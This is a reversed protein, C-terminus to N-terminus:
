GCDVRGERATCRYDTDRGSTVITATHVHESALSVTCAGAFARFRAVTGGDLARWEPGSGCDLGVADVQADSDVVIKAEAARPPDGPCLKTVLSGVFRVESDQGVAESREVWSAYPAGCRASPSVMMDTWAMLARAKQVDHPDEALVDAVTSAFRATAPEDTAADRYHITLVIPDTPALKGHVALDQLFLQHNGAFFDIAQVDAKVTSSEEGYFRKMALSDPLTLEFQVDHAITSVLGDLGDGFLRDVVRDSGLFVYAGHGRESLKDLNADNIDTGVGVATLRVGHERYGRAIEALAGSDTQGVNANADTFLVVRTERSVGRVHSEALAYATNLGEELDTSGEPALHDIASSLEGDNDGVTYSAVDTTVDDSFSVLDVTDGDHLAGEVRHLARKVLGLRDDQNMSGSRDVLLVLNLPKRAPVAGQVSLALSLEEGRREASMKVSFLAGAPVRDHDFTFYNLVEHPRIDRAPVARGAQLAAIARQASGLSASDDNSLWITHGKQSKQPTMTLAPTRDPEGDGLIAVSNTGMSMITGEPAYTRTTVSGGRLIQLTVGSTGHATIAPTTPDPSAVGVDQARQADPVAATQGVPPMPLPAFGQDVKEPVSQEPAIPASSPSSCSALEFFSLYVLANRM